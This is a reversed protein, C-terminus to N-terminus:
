SIFNLNNRRVVSFLSLRICLGTPCPPFCSGTEQRRNGTEQKRDNSHVSGCGRLPPDWIRGFYPTLGHASAETGTGHAFLKGAYEGYGHQLFTAANKINCNVQGECSAGKEVTSRPSPGSCLEAFANRNNQAVAVSAGGPFRCCIYSLKVSRIM